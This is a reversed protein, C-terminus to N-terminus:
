VPLPPELHSGGGRKLCAPLGPSAPQLALFPLFFSGFLQGPPCLLSAVWSSAQDPTGCSPFCARPADLGSPHVPHGLRSRLCSRNLGFAPASTVPWSSLLLLFSPGLLCQLGRLFVWSQWPGSAPLCAPLVHELFCCSPVLAGPSSQLVGPAGWPFLHPLPWFFGPGLPVASPQLCAPLFSWPLRCGLWDFPLLRTLGSAQYPWFGALAWGGCGLFPHALLGFVVAALPSRPVPSWPPALLLPTSWASGLLVVGGPLSGPHHSTGSGLHPFGASSGGRSAPWFPGHSSGLAQHAPLASLSPLCVAFASDLLGIIGQSPILDPGAYRSSPACPQYAAWWRRCPLYLRPGGAPCALAM